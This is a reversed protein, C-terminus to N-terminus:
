KEDEELSKEYGENRKIKSNIDLLKKHNELYAVMDGFGFKNDGFHNYIQKILQFDEPEDVTLRWDSHVKEKMLNGVKFLGSNRIYPTVHEKESSKMADGHAKSLAAFTFVEVDLGDPYIPIVCNAMYDFKSKLFAEILEDIIEADQVPCDGTLRVIIDNSDLQLSQACKYFRDLVNSKSGRFVSYGNETMVEVLRDDSPENSTLLVLRELWKSRRVRECQQVVMPKNLLQKLVKNPLRTSDTRAQLFAVIRKSM